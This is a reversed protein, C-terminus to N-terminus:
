NISAKTNKEKEKEIIQKRLMLHGLLDSFPITRTFGLFFGRYKAASDSSSADYTVHRRIKGGRNYKRKNMVVKKRGRIKMTM